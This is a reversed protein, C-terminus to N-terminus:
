LGDGQIPREEAISLSSKVTDGLDASQLLFRTDIKHLSEKTKERYHFNNSLTHVENIAPVKKEGRCPPPAFIAWHWVRLQEGHWQSPEGPCERLCPPYDLSPMSALKPGLVSM